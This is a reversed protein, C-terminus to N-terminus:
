SVAEAARPRLGDMALSLLRESLASGEPSAEGAAAFAGVMKLLDGIAVDDRVAGVAKANDLLM